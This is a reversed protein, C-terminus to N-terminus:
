LHIVKLRRSFYIEMANMTAVMMFRAQLLQLVGEAKARNHKFVGKDILAIYNRQADLRRQLFEEQRLAYTNM